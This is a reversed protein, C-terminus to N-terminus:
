PVPGQLVWIYTEKRKPSVPAPHGQFSNKKVYKKPYLKHICTLLICNSWNQCYCVSMLLRDGGDLCHVHGDGWFNREGQYFRGMRGLKGWGDWNEGDGPLWQDSAIM